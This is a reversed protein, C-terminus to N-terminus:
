QTGEMGNDYHRVPVSSTPPPTQEAHQARGELWVAVEGPVSAAGRCWQRVQGEQRAVQRGLGRQSWGLLRLCDRLRDPTVIDGFFCSSGSGQTYCAGREIVESNTPRSGLAGDLSSLVQRAADPLGM